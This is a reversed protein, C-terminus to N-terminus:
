YKSKLKFIADTADKKVAPEPHELLPEISKITDKNGLDGLTRCADRIVHTNAHQLCAVIEPMCDRANLDRLAKLGDIVERPNSAKLMACISKIDTEDVPAHLKGLVRAAKRRVPERSDKLLGKIVPIAKTTTPYQKELDQLAETVTDEKSSGLAEILQDETRSKAALLPAPTVLAALLFVAVLTGSRKCIISM